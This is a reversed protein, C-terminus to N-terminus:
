GSPTGSSQCTYAVELYKYTGGCPDGFVSNSVEIICSEAMKSSPSFCVINQITSTPHSYSCTTQDRCGCDAEYVVIVQGEDKCPDSEGLIGPSLECVNKGDCVELVIM